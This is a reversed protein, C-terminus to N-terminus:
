ESGKLAEARAQDAQAEAAEVAARLAAKRAKNKETNWKDRVHKLAEEFDEAREERAKQALGDPDDVRVSANFASAGNYGTSM